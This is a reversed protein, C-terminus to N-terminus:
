HMMFQKCFIIKNRLATLLLRIFLRIEREIIADFVLLFHLDIEVEM